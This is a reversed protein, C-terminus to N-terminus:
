AIYIQKKKADCVGRVLAWVISSGLIYSPFHMCKSDYM